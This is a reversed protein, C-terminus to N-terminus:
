AKETRWETTFKVKFREKIMARDVQLDWRKEGGELRNESQRCVEWGKKLKM